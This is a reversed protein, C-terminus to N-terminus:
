VLVEMLFVVGFDGLVIISDGENLSNTICTNWLVLNGHTDGIFCIM